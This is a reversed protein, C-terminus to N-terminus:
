VFSQCVPFDHGQVVTVVLATRGGGQDDRVDGFRVSRGPDESIDAQSDPFPVDM